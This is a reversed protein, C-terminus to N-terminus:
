STITTATMNNSADIVAKAESSISRLTGSTWQSRGPAAAAMSVRVVKASVRHTLQTVHTILESNFKTVNDVPMALYETVYNM